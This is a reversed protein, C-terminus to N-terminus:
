ESSGKDTPDDGVRTGGNEDEGLKNIADLLCTQYPSQRYTGTPLRIELAAILFIGMHQVTRNGYGQSIVFFPYVGRRM